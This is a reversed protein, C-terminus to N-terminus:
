QASPTFEGTELNITGAGYKQEVEATVQHRQSELTKIATELEEQAMKTVLAQVAVEGYKRALQVGAQQLGRIKDLHVQEVMIVDTM